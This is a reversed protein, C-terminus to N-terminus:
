KTTWLPNHEGPTALTLPLTALDHGRVLYLSSFEGTTAPGIVKGQVRFGILDKM